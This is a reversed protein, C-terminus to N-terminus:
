VAIGIPGDTSADDGLLQKWGVYMACTFIPGMSSLMLLNLTLSMALDGAIAGVVTALALAAMTLVLLLAGMVMAFVLMAPLNRLCARCSRATAPILRIDGFMMDPLVTFTLLGAIAAVVIVLGSWLLLHALPVQQLQEPSIIGQTQAQQVLERIKVLEESGIIAGFLAVCIVTVMLQPLLVGALLRGAKGEQLGRLLQSPSASRGQDVERAAYIMGALILPGGLMLLLQAPLALAPVVQALLSPATAISAFMLGLQGLGVPDRRLLRLAGVVWEAGDLPSLTRITM